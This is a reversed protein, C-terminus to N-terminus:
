VMCRMHDFRGNRWFDPNKSGSMEATNVNRSHGRTMTVPIVPRFETFDVARGTYEDIVLLLRSGMKVLVTSGHRRLTLVAESTIM